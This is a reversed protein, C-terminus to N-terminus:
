FRYYEHHIIFKIAEVLKIMVINQPFHLMFHEWLDDITSFDIHTEWHDPYMINFM